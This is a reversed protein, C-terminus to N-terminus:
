AAIPERSAATAPARVSGSSSFSAPPPVTVWGAPTRGPMTDDTAAPQVSVRTSSTGNISWSAAAHITRHRFAKATSCRPGPLNFRRVATARPETLTNGHAAGTTTFTTASM